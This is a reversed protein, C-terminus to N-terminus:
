PRIGCWQKAAESTVLERYHQFIIEPSNGAELAAENVNKTEAVRCSIYSYLLGNHKWVLGAAKACGCLQEWLYMESNSTMVDTETM